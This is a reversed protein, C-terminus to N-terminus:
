MYTAICSFASIRSKLSEVPYLIPNSTVFHISIELISLFTSLKVQIRKVSCLSCLKCYIRVANCTHLLALLPLFGLNSVRLQIFYWIPHWLISQNRCIFSLFASLKVQVRKLLCLFCLKSNMCVTNCAHLLVLLPPFGLSSVRLQILYRILYWLLGNKIQQWM